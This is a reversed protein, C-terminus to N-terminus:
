RETPKKVKVKVEECKGQAGEVKSQATSSEEHQLAEFTETIGLVEADQGDDDENSWVTQPDELEESLGRSGFV